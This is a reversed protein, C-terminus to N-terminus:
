CFETLRSYSSLTKTTWEPITLPLNLEDVDLLSYLSRWTALLVRERM